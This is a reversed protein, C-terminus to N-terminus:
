VELLFKGIGDEQLFYTGDEQILDDSIVTPSLTSSVSGKMGIPIPVGVTLGVKRTLINIMSM